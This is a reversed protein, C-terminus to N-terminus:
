RASSWRCYVTRGPNYFELYGYVGQLQDRHGFLAGIGFTRFRRSCQTLVEDPSSMILLEPSEHEGFVGFDFVEIQQNELELPHLEALPRLLHGGVDRLQFEPELVQFRILSCGIRNRRLRCDDGYVLLRCLLGCATRQAAV